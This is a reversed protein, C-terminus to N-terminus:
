AKKPGEAALKVFVRVGNPPVSVSVRSGGMPSAFSVATTAGDLADVFPTGAPSIDADVWMEASRAEDATNMVVLVEQGSEIRSFAYIGPGNPDSWRPYQQGRRLAPYKARLANLKQVLKFTPSTEDFKDGASSESKFQGDAFMDERNEPDAPSYSSESGLNGNKQRFAQETGYYILPIGMSLLLFSLAVHLKGLPEGDRLFRYVDHLDIFRVLKAAAQGFAYKTKSMSWDLEITAGHGHLAYNDRRYAPYDYLSDLGADKIFPILEEDIGSSNEGLMLFNKKGLSAAYGKVERVFRPLFGPAIHKIADLRLGDVDTEKLWWSAARIMVDGTDERDSAIHRYNPPFDGHTAQVNDNWDKIVGRRTFANEDNLEQPWLPLEREGIEKPPGQMGSWGGDGKYEFVPGTHNLVWDVVVRMGRKHAESVLKKFDDMTGLRPDVALFHIPAYGHYAEPISMTVPSVLLTTVGMSKLYDLKETAGALDGGHRSLGNKPDGLPRGKASKAFRDLMVSYLTQDRWDDPSATYARGPEPKLDAQTISEPADSPLELRSLDEFKFAGSRLALVMSSLKRQIFRGKPTDALTAAIRESASAYGAAADAPLPAAIQLFAPKSLEATAAEPSAQAAPAIHALEGPTQAAPAAAPGPRAQAQASELLGPFLPLQVEVPPLAPVATPLAAAEPAGAPKDLEVGLAPSFALAAALAIFFGREPQLLAKAKRALRTLRSFRHRSLLETM